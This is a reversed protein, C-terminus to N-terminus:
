TGTPTAASRVAMPQDAPALGHDEPYVLEIGHEAAFTVWAEPPRRDTMLCRIRDWEVIRFLAASEFKSHDALLVAERANNVVQRYLHASEIDSASPGFDMSMGDAGIFALYGRLQDLTSTTIPGVTDMRDPRYQGGLMIVNVGPSDFELALRASNVLVSLGRRDQILSALEFCTTGADLFVQEGDGIREAALAAILRKPELNRQQRAQFSYDSNRQLTAGGHVLNLQQRDALSKLDRRVTAESVELTSSLERVTVHRRQLLEHMIRDQRQKTAQSISM